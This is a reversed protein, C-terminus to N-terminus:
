KEEKELTSERQIALDYISDLLEKNSMKLSPLKKEVISLDQVKQQSLPNLLAPKQKKMNDKEKQVQTVIEQLQKIDEKMKNITENSKVEDEKPTATLTPEKTKENTKKKQKDPVKNDKKPKKDQEPVKTDKSPKKDKNNSM